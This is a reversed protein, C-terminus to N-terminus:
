PVRGFEGRDRARAERVGGRKEAEGVKGKNESIAAEEELLGAVVKVL